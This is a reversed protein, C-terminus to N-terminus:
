ALLLPIAAMGKSGLESLLDEIVKQIGGILTDTGRLEAHWSASAMEPFAAGLKPNNGQLIVDDDRRPSGLINGSTGECSGDHTIVFPQGSELLLVGIVTYDINSFGSDHAHSRFTFSGDGSVSLQASGGLALATTLPGSDFVTPDHPAPRFSVVYNFSGDASHAGGTPCRGAYPGYFLGQCKACARWDAQVNGTMKLDHTLGYAWSGTTVHAGGGPCAGAESAGGAFFLGQCKPCAAWGNQVHRTNSRNFTLRYPFSGDQSHTGGAPCKGKNNAIGAFHM